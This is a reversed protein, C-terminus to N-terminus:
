YANTRFNPANPDFYNAVEATSSPAVWLRNSWPLADDNDGAYLATAYGLQRLNSLCTVAKSREKAKTLAPLLLSALIGIIAIVVLLEILTFGRRAVRCGSYM